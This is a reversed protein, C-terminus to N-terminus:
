TSRIVQRSSDQRRKRNGKREKPACGAPTWEPLAADSISTPRCRWGRWDMEKEAAACLMKLITVELGHHRAFAALSQVRWQQSDPTRVVYPTSLLLPHPEKIGVAEELSWGQSLRDRLRVVSVGFHKAVASFHPFSRGGVEIRERYPVPDVSVAKEAPWGSLLRIRLTGWGVGFHKAAAMISPYEVGHVTVPRPKVHTRVPPDTLGLAQEPSWGYLLRRLALQRSVKGICRCAENLSGYTQGHTNWAITFLTEM